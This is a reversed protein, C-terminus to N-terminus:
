KINNKNFQPHNHYINKIINNKKNELEKLQKKLIAIDEITKILENIEM